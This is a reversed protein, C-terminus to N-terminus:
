LLRAYVIAQNTNFSSTSALDSQGFIATTVRPTLTTVGTQSFKGVLQGPTTGIQIVGVAYRTGAVLNYTAPFGGATAFSRTYATNTAAFLTTDSATRAVLTVASETATYLGMRALTLGSSAVAGSSMLIQSITISVSPTFFTILVNTSGPSIASSMGEHRFTTEVFTSQSSWLQLMSPLLPVNASLRADAITGTLKSAAVAAIKADTVAVDAIDETIVAGPAITPNPYTGTLDGGAIGTPTRSNTLQANDTLVVDVNNVRLSNTFNGSTSTLLGSVNTNVGSVNINRALISNDYAKTMIKELNFM